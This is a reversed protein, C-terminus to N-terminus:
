PIQRNQVQLFAQFGSERLWNKKNYLMLAFFCLKQCCISLPSFGAFAMQELRRGFPLM